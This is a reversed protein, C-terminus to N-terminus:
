GGVTTRDRAEGAGLPTEPAPGAEGGPVLGGDARLPRSRSLRPALILTAGYLVFSAALTAPRGELLDELFLKIAGLLLLPTVLWRAPRMAETRGALAALVTLLGLCATRCTALVAADVAGGSFARGLYAALAGGGGFAGIALLALQSARIMARRGPKAVRAPFAAAVFAAVVTLAAAGSLVPGAAVLGDLWARRAQPVLGSAAAAAVVYLAAHVTLTMRGFVRALVGVGIALTAWCWAPDDLLGASSMVVLLLALTTFYYFCRRRERDLLTFGVVYALVGLALVGSALAAPATGTRAAVYLSGGVGVGVALLTQVGEFSALSWRRRVLQVGVSGVYGAFLLLLVVVLAAPSPVGRALTHYAAISAALDAALASVIALGTWGRPRGIWLAVMGIVLLVVTFALAREGDPISEALSAVAAGLVYPWALAPVRQRWAVVLAGSTVSAVLAASVLPSLLHFRASTEWALPYAILAAALGHWIAVDRRGRAAARSALVLWWFGYALGLAVGALRGGPTTMAETFARLVYAGGMVLLLRGLFPMAAALGRFAAVADPPISGEAESARPAHARPAPSPGPSTTERAVLRELAEVRAVLDRVERALARLDDPARPDEHM